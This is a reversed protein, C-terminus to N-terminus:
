RASSLVAQHQLDLNKVQKGVQEPFMFSSGKHGLMLNNAVQFHSLFSYIIVKKCVKMIKRFLHYGLKRILLFGSNLQISFRLSTFFQIM